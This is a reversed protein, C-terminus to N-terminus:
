RHSGNFILCPFSSDFLPQRPRVVTTVVIQAVNMALLVSGMM